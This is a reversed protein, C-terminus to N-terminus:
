AKVSALTDIRVFCESLRSISSILLELCYPPMLCGFGDENMTSIVDSVLLRREEYKVLSAM